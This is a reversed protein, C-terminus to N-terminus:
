TFGWMPAPVDEGSEAAETLVDLVRGLRFLEREIEPWARRWPGERRLDLRLRGAAVDNATADAPLRPVDFPWGATSGQATGSTRQGLRSRLEGLSSFGSVEFPAM